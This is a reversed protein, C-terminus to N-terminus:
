RGCDATQSPKGLGDGGKIQAADEAASAKVVPRAACPLTVVFVAGKGLESEVQISGNHREVISRSVALGLGTGGSEKTSVFPEFLQPLVEPAIGAGDDRVELEVAHRQEAHRTTIVLNGGHPMADIANLALALLVQEIQNADCQVTSLEPQLQLRLQIGALELKHQILRVCRDVVQNLDAPQLNIPAARSYNLLNKVLDGCRRSESSILTLAETIEQRRAPLVDDRALWKALLRAYTMIGSLPNNIEHALVAAMKGISAMKEAHLVHEHAKKLEGTKEEVRQELTRTWAVIQDNAALLELSMQNFSAALDGLEGNGIGSIQYGLKGQSLKETGKKLAQVPSGVMRWVFVGSVCAILLMAVLTYAVMHRSSQSLGADAAALSLNTDLVGLIQQEAPHAHCPASSCEMRNEIPNIIGLVRSGNIRYIRFRDPRKLRTLPQAQAHCGYCAEGKKDVEAGIENRDSSFSIRGEQDFIRVKVMGPEGAMTGIMHYLAERDNQLMHFSANRKIVDSVREASTLTAAELHQRHLRVNLYGLASFTILLGLCLFLILRASLSHSVRRWFSAPDRVPEIEPM